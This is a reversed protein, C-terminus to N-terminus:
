DYAAARRGASRSQHSVTEAAMKACGAATPLAGNQARRRGTSDERGLAPTAFDTSAVSKFDTPRFATRTRTGGGTDIRLMPPATFLSVACDRKPKNMQLGLERLVPFAVQLRTANDRQRTATYTAKSAVKASAVQTRERLPKPASFTVRCRFCLRCSM